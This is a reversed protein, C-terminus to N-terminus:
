VTLLELPFSDNGISASLKLFDNNRFILLLWNTPVVLLETFFPKNPSNFVIKFFDSFSPTSFSLLTSPTSFSLLTSSPSPTSFSILTSLTSFSILTSSLFCFSIKLINPSLFIKPAILPNFSNFILSSNPLKIKLAFLSIFSNKKSSCVSIFILSSSLSNKLSKEIPIFCSLIFKFSFYVKYKLLSSFKNCNPFSALPNLKSGSVSLIYLIFTPSKKLSKSM